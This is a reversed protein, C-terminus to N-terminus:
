WGSSPSQATWTSFLIHETGQREQVQFWLFVKLYVITTTDEYMFLETKPCNGLQHERMQVSWAGHGLRRNKAGPGSATGVNRLDGFKSICLELAKPPAGDSSDMFKSATDFNVDTVENVDVYKMTEVEFTLCVIVQSNYSSGVGTGQM